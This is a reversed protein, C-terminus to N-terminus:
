LAAIAQDYNPEHTIEEVQETYLVKGEEDLVVVCRSMLGKLAGSVLLCGYDKGFDPSKFTSLTVVNEL